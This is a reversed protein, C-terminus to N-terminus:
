SGNKRDFVFDFVSNFINSFFDITEITAASNSAMVLKYWYHSAMISLLGFLFVLAGVWRKPNKDDKSRKHLLIYLGAIALLISILMSIYYGPGALKRGFNIAQKNIPKTM